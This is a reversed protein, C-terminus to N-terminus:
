ATSRSTPARRRALRDTASQLDLKAPQPARELTFSVTQSKKLDLTKEQPKFGALEVVIKVAGKTMKVTIPTYGM